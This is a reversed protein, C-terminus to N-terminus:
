YEEQHISSELIRGDRGCIDYLAYYASGSIGIQWIPQEPFEVEFPWKIRGYWGFMRTFVSTDEASVGLLAMDEAFRARAVVIADELTLMKEDPLACQYSVKAEKDRFSWDLTEGTTGHLLIHPVIPLETGFEITIVWCDEETDVYWQYGPGFLATYEGKRFCPTIDVDLLDKYFAAALSLAEKESLQDKTPTHYIDTDGHASCTLMIMMLALCLLKKM